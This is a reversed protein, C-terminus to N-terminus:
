YHPMQPHPKRSGGLYNVFSSLPMAPMKLCYHLCFRYTAPPSSFSVNLNIHGLTLSQITKSLLDERVRSFITILLDPFDTCLHYLIFISIKVNHLIQKLQMHMYLPKCTPQPVLTPTSLWLKYM